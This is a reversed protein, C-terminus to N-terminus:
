RQWVPDRVAHILGEGSSLGSKVRNAAWVEEVRRMLGMVMGLASGKRGSSTRGIQVVFLNPFHLDAGVQVYPHHGVASGFSVLLNLLLAAPDAETHPELLRVAEGAIGHYAAAGLPEPWDEEWRHDEYCGRGVLPERRRN